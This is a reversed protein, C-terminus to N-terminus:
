ATTLAAYQDLRPLLEALPVSPALFLARDVGAEALEDLTKPKPPVAFVTM